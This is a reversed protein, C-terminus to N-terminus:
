RSWPYTGDPRPSRMAKGPTRRRGFGCLKDLETQFTTRDVAAPLGPANTGIAAATGLNTPRDKM